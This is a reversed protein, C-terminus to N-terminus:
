PQSPLPKTPWAPIPRPGGTTRRPSDEIEPFGDGLSNKWIPFLRESLDSPRLWNRNSLRSKRGCAGRSVPATHNFVRGTTRQPIKLKRSAPRQSWRLSRIRAVRGRLSKPSKRAGPESATKKSGAAEIQLAVAWRHHQSRKDAFKLVPSRPGQPGPGAMFHELYFRIEEVWRRLRPPATKRGDVVAPEDAAVAAAKLIPIRIPPGPILGVRRCTGRRQSARSNLGPGFIGTALRNSIGFRL